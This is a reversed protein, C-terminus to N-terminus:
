FYEILTAGMNELKNVTFVLRNLRFLNLSRIFHM